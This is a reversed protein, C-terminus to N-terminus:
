VATARWAAVDALTRSDAQRRWDTAIANDFVAFVAIVAIRERFIAGVAVLVASYAICAALRDITSGAIAAVTAHIVGVALGTVVIVLVIAILTGICTRQGGAIVLDSVALLAIDIATARAFRAAFAVQAISGIVAVGVTAADIVHLWALDDTWCVGFAIRALDLATYVM